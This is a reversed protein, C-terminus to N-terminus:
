NNYLTSDIKIGDRYTSREKLLGNGLYFEIVKGNLKGNEWSEQKIMNGNPNFYYWVGIKQGDCYSGKTMIKGNAFYEKYEGDLSGFDYNEMMWIKGSPYYTIAGDIEKGNKWTEISKYHNNLHYVSEWEGNKKGDTFSGKYIIGDEAFEWKGSYSRFLM